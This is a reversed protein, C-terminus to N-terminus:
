EVLFAELQKIRDKLQDIEQGDCLYVVGDYILKSCDELEYPDIKVSLDVIPTHGVEHRISSSQVYLQVMM